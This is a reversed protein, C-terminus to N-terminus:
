KKNIKIQYLTVNDTIAMLHERSYYPLINHSKNKCSLVFVAPSPVNTILIVAPKDAALNAPGLVQRFVDLAIDLGLYFSSIYAQQILIVWNAPEELFVQDSGLANM